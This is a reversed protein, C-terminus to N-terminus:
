AARVWQKADSAFPVRIPEGGPEWPTWVAREFRDRLIDCVQQGREPALEQPVELVVSDHIQLLLEGPFLRDIDIMATKMIEALSGQVIQNFAKHSPEYDSFWRQRGNYLRVYGMREAQDQARELAVTFPSFAQKWDNIWGRVQKLSVDMNAFKLLQERIVKAGAGYLIGLNCRKAIQRRQDWLPDSEDIGFMLKCAISHSDDGREIGELMPRCRALATALRIEAQSVDFEWLQFGPRPRFFNRVSPVSKSPMLYDHPIAQLQVRGVALRGSITGGQKYSTRLRGDPGCALPWPDYWKSIASKLGEHNAYEEAWPVGRAVLRTITEEDVQPQGGATLKDPFPPTGRFDETGPRVPEPDEQGKEPLPAERFFFKRAANPTPGGTSGKFPLLRAAAVQETRLVEAAARCGEADFGVGRREMNRLVHIFEMEEDFYKWFGVDTEPDLRDNQYEWLLLTLEADVRAYPEMVSWPVLDFRPDSNKGSKPGLWPKLAEAEADEAGSDTLELRVASPKLGKPMQPERVWQAIMTDWALHPQLNRGPHGRLGAELFMLDFKANHFVLDLPELVNLLRDFEEPPRNPTVEALAWEPWKKLRRQTAATLVKEGLPSHLGQDFPVAQSILSDDKPDRYAFSVVSVRAGDDPHLGSGEIDVTVPWNKPLENLRTV